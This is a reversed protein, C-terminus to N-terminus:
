AIQPPPTTTKHYASSYNPSISHFAVQTGEPTFAFLQQNPYFIKVVDNALNKTAGNKLPKNNTIHKEIHEEFNSFLVTEKKDNICFYTISNKNEQSNIIDYRESNYVMEKRNDKWDIKHLDKKDITIITQAETNIGLKIQSIITSKIQYQMARFAIFYGMTNFLFIFLFFYAVIKKTINM